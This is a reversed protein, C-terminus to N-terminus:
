KSREVSTLNSNEERDLNRMDGDKEKKSKEGTM